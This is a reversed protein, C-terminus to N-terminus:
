DTSLTPKEAYSGRLKQKLHYSRTRRGHAGCTQRSRVNALIRGLLTTDKRSEFVKTDWFCQSARELPVGALLLEVAFTDYFMHPRAASLGALKFLNRLRKQWSGVIIGLNGTGAWFLHRGAVRPTVELWSTVSEPLVTNVPVGTKQTYLM